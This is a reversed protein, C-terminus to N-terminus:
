PPPCATNEGWVWQTVNGDSASARATRLANFRNACSSALHGGWGMRTETAIRVTPPAEVLRRALLAPFGRRIAVAGGSAHHAPLIRDGGLLAVGGGEGPALAILASGM